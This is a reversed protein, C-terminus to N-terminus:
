ASEKDELTRESLVYALGASIALSDGPHALVFAEIAQRVKTLDELTTMEQAAKLLQAREPGLQEELTQGLVEFDGPFWTFKFAPPPNRILQWFAELDGRSAADWRQRGLENPDVVLSANILADYAWSHAGIAQIEPDDYSRQVAEVPLGVRYRNWGAGDYLRRFGARELSPIWEAPPSPPLEIAVWLATEHGFPTYNGGRPCVAIWLQVDTSDPATFRCVFAVATGMRRVHSATAGTISGLLTPRLQKLLARGWELIADSAPDLQQPLVRKKLTQLLDNMVLAVEPEAHDRALLDHILASVEQWHVDRARWPDDPHSLGEVTSLTGVRRVVAELEATTGERWARIYVDTQAVPVGDLIYEHFGASVKVEVLLQLRRGDACLALDPQPYGTEPLPPLKVQAAAGLSSAVDLADSAEPDGTLFLGAFGHAFRPSRDILWALVRTLQNEIPLQLATSPTSILGEILNPRERPATPDFYVRM